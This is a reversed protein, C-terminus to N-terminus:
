LGVLISVISSPLGVEIDELLGMAHYEREEPVNPDKLPSNDYYPSRHDVALINWDVQGRLRTRIVVADCDGKTFTLQPKRATLRVKLKPKFTSPDFSPRQTKLRLVGEAGSKAFLPKTKWYRIMNRIEAACPANAEANRAGKLASRAANTADYLGLMERAVDEAAAIEEPTLGIEAGKEATNLLLNKWWQYRQSRQGPIIDRPM